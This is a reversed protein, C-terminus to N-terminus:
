SSKDMKQDLKSEIRRAWDFFESRFDQFDDRRYYHENLDRRILSDEARLDDLMKFIRNVLWGIGASFLTLAASWLTLVIEPSLPM